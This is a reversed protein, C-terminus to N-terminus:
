NTEKKFQLQCTLHGNTEKWSSTGGLKRTFSHILKGEPQVQDRLRGTVFHNDLAEAIRFTVTVTANPSNKIAVTIPFAEDRRDPAFPSIMENLLMGLTVAQSANLHLENCHMDLGSFNNTKMHSVVQQFPIAQGEGAALLLEYVKSLTRIRFQTTKLAVKSSHSNPACVHMDILVALASLDRNLQRSVKQLHAKRSRILSRYGSRAPFYIFGAGALLIVWREYGSFLSASYLEVAALATLHDGALLWGGFLILYICVIKAAQRNATSYDSMQQVKKTPNIHNRQRSLHRSRM